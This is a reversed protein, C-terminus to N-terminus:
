LVGIWKATSSLVKMELSLVFDTLGPLRRDASQVTPNSEHYATSIIGKAIM